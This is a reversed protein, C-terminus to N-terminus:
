TKSVAVRLPSAGRFVAVLLYSIFLILMNIFFKKFAEM